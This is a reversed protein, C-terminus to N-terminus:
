AAEKRRWDPGAGIRSPTPCIPKAAHTFDHAPLSAADLQAAENMGAGIFVLKQRRDRWPEAWKGAVEALPGQDGLGVM